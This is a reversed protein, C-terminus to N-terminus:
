HSYMIIRAVKIDYNFSFVVVYSQTIIIRQSNERHRVFVILTTTTTYEIYPNTYLSEVSIVSPLIPLLKTFDGHYM